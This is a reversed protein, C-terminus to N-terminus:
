SVKYSRIDTVNSKLCHANRSSRYGRKRASVPPPSSDILRGGRNVGPNCDAPWPPWSLSRRPYPNAM